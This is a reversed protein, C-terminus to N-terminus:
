FHGYGKRIDEMGSSSINSKQELSVQEGMDKVGICMMEELSTRYNYGKKPIEM